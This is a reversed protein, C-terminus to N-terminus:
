RRGIGRLRDSTMSIVLDSNPGFRAGEDHLQRLVPALEAWNRGTVDKLQALFAPSAAARTMQEVLERAETEPERPSPAPATEIPPAPMETDNLRWEGAPDRRVLKLQELAKVSAFIARTSVGAAQALARASQHARGGAAALVFLLRFDSGRLTGLHQVVAGPLSISDLSSSNM